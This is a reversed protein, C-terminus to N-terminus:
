LFHCPSKSGAMCTQVHAGAHRLWWVVFILSDSACISKSAHANKPVSLRRSSGRSGDSSRERMHKRRMRRQPYRCGAHEVVRDMLPDDLCSTKLGALCTQVHAGAHGLWRVVILTRQPGFDSLLILEHNYMQTYMFTHCIGGGHMNFTRERGLSAFTHMLAPSCMGNPPPIYLYM